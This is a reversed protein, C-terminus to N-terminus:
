VRLFRAIEGAVNDPHTVPSMHGAGVVIVRLVNPLRAALVDHVERLGEPPNSSEILLVPQKVAELRGADFLGPADYLTVDHEPEVVEIRKAMRAQREPTLRDFPMDTNVSDNFLRAARLHEGAAVAARVEHMTAEVMDFTPTGAIGAYMPPEIMTLSRVQEPREMALRLAVTGGFSHGVLDARRDILGGAIATTLDHLARGDDGGTWDASRGHGPRDFATMSLKDLLAAQVGLWAGSHALTCHIFLARRLGTGM